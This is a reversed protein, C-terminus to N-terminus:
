IIPEAKLVKSDSIFENGCFPCSEPMEGLDTYFTKNCTDEDCHWTNILHEVSDKSQLPQLNSKGVFLFDEYGEVNVAYKMSPERFDNINYIEGEALKNGNADVIAVKDQVKFKM